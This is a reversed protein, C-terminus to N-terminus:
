TNTQTNHLYFILAHFNLILNCLYIPISCLFCPCFCLPASDLKTKWLSRQTNEIIWDEEFGLLLVNVYIECPDVCRPYEVFLTKQFVWILYTRSSVLVQDLSETFWLSFILTLEIYGLDHMEYTVTHM